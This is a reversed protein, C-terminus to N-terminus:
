EYLAGVPLNCVATLVGVTGHNADHATQRQRREATVDAVGSYEASNNVENVRIEAISDNSPFLETMPASSRPMLSSIGDISTSLMAPKLGVVSLNGSSDTQVGPQSGITTLASTSGGARAALALPLDELLDGSKTEAINSVETTIVPAAEATVSVTEAQTAVRLTGDIRVTQQATLQLGPFEAVQFGPL